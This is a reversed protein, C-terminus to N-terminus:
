PAPIYKPIFNAAETRTGNELQILTVSKTPVHSGNQYSIKGTVGEFDQTNGIAKLLASSDYSMARQIANALLNVTDFGLAAFANPPPTHYVDTFNKIFDVVLHNKSAPDLFVHTTFYVQGRTEASAQTLAVTDFGDGGFVPQQFGAARIKKLLIPAEAPGCAVFLFDPPTQLSKVKELVSDVTDLQDGTFQEEGIIKGGLHEFSDKFYRTLLHAYDMEIEFLIFVKKLRLKQFAYQAGAAAQVNDGFAVLFVYEPIHRPLLPSTAGSTLFFKKHQAAAPAAALVMDNDSFGIMGILNPIEALEEAQQAILRVDSSGNRVTLNLNSIGYAKKEKLLKLALNVGQLSATDISAQEGTLNYMAGVEHPTQINEKPMDPTCGGLCLLLAAVLCKHLM